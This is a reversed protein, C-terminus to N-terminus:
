QATAFMVTSTLTSTHFPEHISTSTPPPQRRELDDTVPHSRPQHPVLLTRLLNTARAPATRLKTLIRWAKLHAFGHEVLSRAASLLQNRHVNGRQRIQIRGLTRLRQHPSRRPLGPPTLRTLHGRRHHHPGTRLGRREQVPGPPM